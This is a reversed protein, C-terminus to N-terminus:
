VFTLIDSSDARRARCFQVLLKFDIKPDSFLKRFDDGINEMEGLINRNLGIGQLRM